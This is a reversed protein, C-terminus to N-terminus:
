RKQWLKPTNIKYLTLKDYIGEFNYFSIGVQEPESNKFLQDQSIIFNGSKTILYGIGLFLHRNKNKDQVHVFVPERDDISKKYEDWFNEKVEIVDTAYPTEFIYRKLTDPAECTCGKEPEDSLFYTPIKEITDEKMIGKCCTKDWFDLLSVISTAYSSHFYTYKPIHEIIKLEFEQKNSTQLNEVKEKSGVIVEIFKESRPEIYIKEKKNSFLIAYQSISTWYFGVNEIEKIKEEAIKKLYNFNKKHPPLDFSFEQIQLNNKKIIIFGLYKKFKEFEFVFFEENDDGKYIEYNSVKADKWNEFYNHNALYNIFEQAFGGLGGKNFPSTPPNKDQTQCVPNINFFLFFLFIFLLNKTM